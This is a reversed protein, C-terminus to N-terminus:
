EVARESVRLERNPHALPQGLDRPTMQGFAARDEAAGQLLERPEGAGTEAPRLGRGAPPITALRPPARRGPRPRRLALGEPELDLEAADGTLDSAPQVREHEADEVTFSVACAPGSAGLRPSTGGPRVEVALSM